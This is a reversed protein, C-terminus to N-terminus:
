PKSNYADQLASLTAQQNKLRQSQIFSSLQSESAVAGFSQQEKCFETSPNFVSISKTATQVGPNMVTKNHLSPIIQSATTPSSGQM